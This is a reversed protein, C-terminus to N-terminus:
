DLPALQWHSGRDVPVFPVEAGGRATPSGGPVASPRTGPRYRITRAQELEEVLKRADRKAIGFRKRLADVMMEHGEERTADLQPGYLDQLAAVAEALSITAAM